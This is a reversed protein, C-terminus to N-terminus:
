WRPEHLSAPVWGAHRGQKGRKFQFIDRQAVADRDRRHALVAGDVAHDIVPVLRMVGAQGTATGAQHDDFRSGHRGFAADGRAAGSQPAVRLLGAHRANGRRDLGAARHGADLDGVGAALGAGVPRPLAVVMDAQVIRAAPLRQRRRRHREARVQGLHGPRHREVVNCAHLAIEGGGGATREIGAKFPEFQM